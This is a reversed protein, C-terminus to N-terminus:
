TSANDALTEQPGYRENMDPTSLRFTNRGAQKAMYMADDAAKTLSASDAGDEPFLSIGISGGIRVAEGGAAKLTFPRTLLGILTQAVRAADKPGRVSELLFLFEDGGLRALTDEERLRSTLRKAVALLLEDGAQHGYTDNVQKFKDLDIFLLAVRGKHRQAKELAHELRSKALLRNPLDTLADYQALHQLRAEEQKIRSIDSVLGVLQTAEGWENRV